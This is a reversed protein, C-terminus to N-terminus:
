VAGVKVQLAPVCVQIHEGSSMWCNAGGECNSMAQVYLTQIEPNLTCVQIYEGSSMWRNAEGDWKSMATFVVTRAPMNLGM